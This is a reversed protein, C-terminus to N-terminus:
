QVYGCVAFRLLSPQNGAYFRGNTWSGQSYKRCCGRCAGARWGGDLLRFIQSIETDGCKRIIRYSEERLKDKLKMTQLPPTEFLRRIPVELIPLAEIASNLLLRDVNSFHFARLGSPLSGGVLAVIEEFEQDIMVHPVKFRQGSITATFLHFPEFSNTGLPM